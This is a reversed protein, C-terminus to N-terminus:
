MKTTVIANKVTDSSAIFLFNLTCCTSNLKWDATGIDLYYLSLKVLDGPKNNDVARGKGLLAM